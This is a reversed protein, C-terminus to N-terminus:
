DYHRLVLDLLARQQDTSAGDTRFRVHLRDDDTAVVEAEIWGVPPVAVRLLTGAPLREDTVMGVGGVSIDVIVADVERGDVMLATGISEPVRLHHRRSEPTPSDLALRLLGIEHAANGLEEVISQDSTRTLVARLHEQVVSLRDSLSQTAETRDHM